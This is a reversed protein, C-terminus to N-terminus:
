EPRRYYMEHNELLTDAVSDEAYRGREIVRTQDFVPYLSDM